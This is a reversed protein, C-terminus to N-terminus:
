DQEKLPKIVALMGYKDEKTEFVPFLVGDKKDHKHKPFEYFEYFPKILQEKQEDTLNPHTDIVTELNDLFMNHFIFDTKFYNVKSM